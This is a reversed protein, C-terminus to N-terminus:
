AWDSKPKLSARAKRVLEEARFFLTKKRLRYWSLEYHEPGFSRKLRNDGVLFDYYKMGARAYYDMAVAHCVYGPRLKPDAYDFGSQYNSVIGNRCFNYLFGLVRPGASVRMLDISGDQLGSAILSRHFKEFFPKDFAHRRGRREWSSVHMEKLGDFFRRAIDLDTAIQVSLPGHPEYARLAKRLQQRTNSSLLPDIGSQDSLGDLSARFGGSTHAHRILHTGISLASEVGPLYLEDVAISGASFAQILASVLEDGDRDGCAFGNHEIMLSDGPANLWARRVPLTGHLRGRQFCLVAVGVLESGRTGRVLFPELTAPLMSVWTGVWAWSLFFSHGGTRDFPVWLRELADRSPLPEVTIVLDSM